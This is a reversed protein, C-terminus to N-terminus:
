QAIAGHRVWWDSHANALAEAAVAAQDGTEFLGFCTAGSGSMSAWLAGTAALADVTQAIEPAISRAPALLDNGRSKMWTVSMADGAYPSAAGLTAPQLASFVARTPVAVGANALVLHLGGSLGAAPSLIDGIGKMIQPAPGALCVPVDAGLPLAEAGTLPAVAWLSALARLAAAADSSGGGIGAAHPLHKELTIAAGSSVGRADALLRAARLVINTDDTPVGDARPGQVALSIRDSPAVTVVDAIDPAFVVASHLLHYGDPRRGTVTLTLNIKAPAHVRVTTM